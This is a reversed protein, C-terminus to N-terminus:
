DRDPETATPMVGNALYNFINEFAIASEDPRYGLARYSAQDTAGDTLVCFSFVVSVNAPLDTLRMGVYPGDQPPYDNTPMGDKFLFLRFINDTPNAYMRYYHAPNSDLAKVGAITQAASAAFVYHFKEDNAAQSFM